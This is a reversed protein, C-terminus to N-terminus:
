TADELMAHTMKAIGDHLTIPEVNPHKSRLLTPDGLSHRIDGAREAEHTYTPLKGHASSLADILNLLNTERGTCINTVSFGEALGKMEQYLYLVLDKVYIFDRTQRGDGFVIFPLESRIRDFFISIVGSYPSSPDQRPGYVNFFRFASVPVKFLDWALKGHMESALKDLGYASTPGTASIESLPLEPNDGYVAASSALVVPKPRNGHHSRAANLVTITGGLNTRHTGIWDTVSAQVSAVAALHFCGDVRNMCEAVLDTDCVDGVTLNAKSPVNAKKGTSLNDLITVHHGNELLLETLHSGIFGAGGTVLYHM